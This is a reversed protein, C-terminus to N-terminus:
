RSQQFDDLGRFYTIKGNVVTFHHTYLSTYTKGSALHNYEAEVLIFVDDGDAAFRVPQFKTYQFKSGLEQFFNAVEAKGRFFRPQTDFVRDQIEFVVDDTCNALLSPIDGKGFYGYTTQVTTKNRAALDQAQSLTACCLALFLMTLQKMHLISHSLFHYVNM